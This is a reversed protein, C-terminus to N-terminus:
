PGGREVDPGFELAVRKSMEWIAHRTADNTNVFWEQRLADYTGRMGELGDAGGSERLVDEAAKLLETNVTTGNTPHEVLTQPPASQEPGPTPAPSLTSLSAADRNLLALLKGKEGPAIKYSKGAPEIAVWPSELRYLYRGVGWQVAARKFADSIGGKEAEHATDGAGDAKAVWGGDM